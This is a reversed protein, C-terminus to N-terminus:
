DAHPVEMGNGTHRINHTLEDEDLNAFVRTFVANCEPQVVESTALGVISGDLELDISIGPYEDWEYSTFAHMEGRETQVSLGDKLYSKEGAHPSSDVLGANQAYEVAKKLYEASYRKYDLVFM